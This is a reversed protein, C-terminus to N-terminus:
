SSPPRNHFTKSLINDSTLTDTNNMKTKSNSGNLPNVYHNYREGIIDTLSISSNKKLGQRQNSDVFKSQRSKEAM